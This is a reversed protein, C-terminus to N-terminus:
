RKDPFTLVATDSKMGGVNECYDLAIGFIGLLGQLM